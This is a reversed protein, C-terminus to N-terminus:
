PVFELQKDTIRLHGFVREGVEYDALSPKFEARPIAVDFGIGDRNFILLCKQKGYHALAGRMLPEILQVLEARELNKVAGLVYVWNPQSDLTAAMFTVGQEKAAIRMSADHFKEGLVARERLRLDALVAQMKLYAARQYPPDFRNLLEAPLSNELEPDRTALEDAVRELLGSYFDSEAKSKLANRLREGQSAVAIRADSLGICGAFSADNLLYFQFFDREAGIIRQDNIPLARKANIYNLLEPVTRLEVVLNLFDNVGFYTVPAQQYVLPLDGAALHLDVEQFVEVIVICHLVPPLGDPFQVRGRRIHDCWIARDRPRNLTRRLQSWAAKANKRAWLDVKEASRKLPDDQCKQSVLIAQGQHLILFDSVEHETTGDLTRPSRFVFERVLPVSLLDEM